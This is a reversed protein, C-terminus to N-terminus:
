SSGTACTSGVRLSIESTRANKTPYFLSGIRAQDACHRHQRQSLPRQVRLRIKAATSHVSPIGFLHSNPFKRRWWEMQASKGDAVTAATANWTDTTQAIKTFYYPFFFFSTPALIIALFSPFLSVWRSTLIRLSAGANRNFDIESM